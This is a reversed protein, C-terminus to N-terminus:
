RWPSFAALLVPGPANWASTLPSACPKADAHTATTEIVIGIAASHLICLIAERLNLGPEHATPGETRRGDSAVPDRPSAFGTPQM